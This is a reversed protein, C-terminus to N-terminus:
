EKSKGTHLRKSRRAEAKVAPPMGPAVPKLEGRAIRDIHPPEYGMAALTYATINFWGIEDGRMILRNPKSSQKAM